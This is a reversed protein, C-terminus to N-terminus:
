NENINIGLAECVSGDDGMETLTDRILDHWKKDKIFKRIPADKEYGKMAIDFEKLINDAENGYKGKHFKQFQSCAWYPFKSGLPNLKWDEIPYYPFGSDVATDVEPDRREADIKMCEKKLRKFAEEPYKKEPLLNNIEGPDNIMDYFEERGGYYWYIYKYQRDRLMVVRTVHKAYEVFQYQRDSKHLLSKGSLPFEKNSKQYDYNIGAEEIITPFIDLLDVFGDQRSGPKFRKPYRIILPIRSSSDYPLGKTYFGKDHLMEGHDSSFIIFTNDLQDIKELYDLIKGISNDVMSISTYYAERIARKDEESDFDGYLESPEDNESINRSIPIEEPLDVDKYLGQWEEPISWPPHPQIWGCMMFFPKDGNKKLWEISRNGVWNTGHHEEPVISNQPTHYIMPRMGHMHAMHGLGQSELYQLYEDEIIDKPIEEMLHLEDFGHHRRPPHFHMKGVAVTNYGHDSMVRPITPIREDKIPMGSNGYYGHRKAPQGTLMYHRAPMCVPNPTYANSFLCGENVLRDMNPTKMFNYGAANITDFRQQDPLLILFNPKKSM